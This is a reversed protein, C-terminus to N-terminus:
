TGQSMLLYFAQLEQKATEMSFDQERDLIVQMFNQGDPLLIFYLGSVIGTDQQFAFSGDTNVVASDMLFNTSGIQGILKAMGGNLGAVKVQLNLPTKPALVEPPNDPTDPTEVNSDGKCATLSLVLLPIFLFNKIKWVMQVFILATNM